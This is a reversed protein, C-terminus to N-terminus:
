RTQSKRKRYCFPCMNKRYLLPVYKQGCACTPYKKHKLADTNFKIYECHIHQTPHNAKLPVAIEDYRM